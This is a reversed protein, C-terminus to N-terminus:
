ELVEEALTIDSSRGGGRGSSGGLRGGRSRYRTFGARAKGAAHAGRYHPTTIEVDEVDRRGDPREYEIRLDPFQVSGADMPLHHERAWDEIEFPTRDPRGDSDSRDRNRAQLFRQYERKLEHELVVREIRAGEAVLRAGARRYARLLQADHALERPRAVGAYFTQQGDRQDVRHHELLDRGEKTLTLLPTGRADSEPGVVHVLGAARLREVDGSVTNSRRDPDDQLDRLPTVRFAGITALTRVESARLDYERDGVQVHERDQGRPLALGEAFVDDPHQRETHRVNFPDRDRADTDRPDLCDWM